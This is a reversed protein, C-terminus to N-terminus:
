NPNSICMAAISFSSVSGLWEANCNQERWAPSIKRKYVRIFFQCCNPSLVQSLFAGWNLQLDPPM